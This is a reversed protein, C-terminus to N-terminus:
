RRVPHRCFDGCKGWLAVDRGAISHEADVTIVAIEQRLLGRYLKQTDNSYALAM